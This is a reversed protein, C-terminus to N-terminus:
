SKDYDDSKLIESEFILDEKAEPSFILILRFKKLVLNSIMQNEIHNPKNKKLINLHQGPHIKMLFHIFELTQFYSPSLHIESVSLQTSSLEEAWNILHNQIAYCINAQPNIFLSYWHRESLILLEEWADTGEYQVQIKPIQGTKNFFNWTPFFSKLFYQSIM